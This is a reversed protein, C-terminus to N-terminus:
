HLKEATKHLDIVKDYNLPTVKVNEMNPRRVARLPNARLSISNGMIRSVFVFIKILQETATM